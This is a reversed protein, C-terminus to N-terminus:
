PDCHGAVREFRLNDLNTRLDETDRQGRAEAELLLRREDASYADAADPVDAVAKLEVYVDELPLSIAKGSRSIGKFTLRTHQDVLFGRYRHELADLGFSPEM